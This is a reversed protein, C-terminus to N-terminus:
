RVIPLNQEICGYEKVPLHISIVAYIWSTRTDARGHDYADSVLVRRFVESWFADVDDGLSTPGLGRGLVKRSELVGPRVPLNPLNRTGTGTCILVRM